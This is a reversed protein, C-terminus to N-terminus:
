SNTNAPVDDNPLHFLAGRVPGRDDFTVSGIDRPETHYRRGDSRWVGHIRDGWVVHMRPHLFAVVASLTWRFGRKDSAADEVLLVMAVGEYCYVSLGVFFPLSAAGTWTEVVTTPMGTTGLIQLAVGYVAIQGLFNAGIAFASLPALSKIDPLWSLLVLLPMCAAVVNQKDYGYRAHVNKSIFLLHSIAFGVQSIAIAVDIATEGIRGLLVRGIDGYAVIPIGLTRHIIYKCDLLLHVTYLCLAGVMFLTLCGSLLGVQKFAYPLGLIGAGIFSLLSNGFTRSFGAKSEDSL